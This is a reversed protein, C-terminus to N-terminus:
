GVFDEVGDEVPILVFVVEHLVVVKEVFADVFAFFVVKEVELVFVDVEDLVFDFFGFFDFFILLM